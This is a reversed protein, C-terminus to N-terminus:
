KSNKLIKDCWRDCYDENEGYVRDQLYEVIPPLFRSAKFEQKEGEFIQIETEGVFDPNDDLFAEVANELPSEIDSHFAEEDYSYCKNEVVNARHRFINDYNDWYASLNAGKRLGDGKGASV